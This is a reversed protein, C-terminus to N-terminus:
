KNENEIKEEIIENLWTSTGCNECLISVIIEGESTYAKYKFMSRCGCKGCIVHLDPNTKNLVTM